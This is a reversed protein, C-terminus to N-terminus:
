SSEQCETVPKIWGIKTFNTWRKKKTDRKQTNRSIRSHKLNGEEGM